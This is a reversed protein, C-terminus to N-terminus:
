RSQLIYLKEEQTIKGEDFLRIVTKEKIKDNQYLRRLSEIFQNM